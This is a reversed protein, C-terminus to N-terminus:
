SHSGGKQNLYSVLNILKNEEELLLVMVLALIERKLSLIYCYMLMHMIKLGKQMWSRISCNSKDYCKLIVKCAQIKELIAVTFFIFIRYM